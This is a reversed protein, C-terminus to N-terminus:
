TQSSQVTYSISFCCISYITSEEKQNFKFHKKYNGFISSYFLSSGFSQLSSGSGSYDNRILLVAQPLVNNMIFIEEMGVYFIFLIPPTILFQDLLLKKGIIPLSTGVFRQLLYIYIYIYIKKAKPTKIPPGTEGSM